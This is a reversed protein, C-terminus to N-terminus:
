LTQPASFRLRTLTKSDWLCVITLAAIAFMVYGAYQYAHDYHSGATPYSVSRGVNILTHFLTAAFLSRGTNNYLWVIVIRIAVAGLLWWALDSATGGIHMISPFHGLWWPIALLVSAGLAGWRDQLPDIAYGMWGTEEGAALPFFIALLVPIMVTHIEAVGTNGGLRMVIVLLLDIVLVLFLLPVYWIAPSIRYDVIRTLLRTVGGPGEEQYVLIAAAIMPVFALVLDTAPIKLSEINGVIPGLLWLPIALVLVVLFFKLASKRPAITKM